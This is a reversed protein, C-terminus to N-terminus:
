AGTEAVWHEILAVNRLNAKFFFDFVDGALPVSGVAWDVALNAAMRALLSAPAGMRWAELLIYGGVATMAADGVAPILGILGDLGIRRGIVPVRVASDLLTAIRQLRGLRRQLDVIGGAPRAYPTSYTMAMGTLWHRVM